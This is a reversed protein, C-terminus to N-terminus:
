KLHPQALREYEVMRRRLVDVSAHWFAEDTTDIGFRAGLTEANEMGCRSLLDDYGHRFKDADAKYREYLGLGFLLGFTYPYNYFHHEYNAYLRM